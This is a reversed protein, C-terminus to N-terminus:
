ISRTAIAPTVRSARRAPGAVAAQGVVWLVLMAAPIVYWALPELAFAEVMFMNLAVALIAGAVIGVTSVLFNEVMFHRMVAVRTAGLARRIGIQRTRRSVNFSALGVIGLGTIITLLSVVFTLMKIMAEGLYALRRVDDMTTVYEVFEPLVRLLPGGTLVTKAKKAGLREVVAAISAGKGNKLRSAIGGFVFKALESSTLIRNSCNCGM